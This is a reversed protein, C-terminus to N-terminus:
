YHEKYNESSVNSGMILKLNSWGWFAVTRFFGHKRFRRDSLSVLLKDDYIIEKTKPFRRMLDADECVVSRYGGAKLFVEKRFGSNNSPVWCEKTIRHNIKALLFIIRSYSDYILKWLKSESTYADFGGVVMLGPNEFHKRIRDLFNGAIVSDADVFVIIGNKAKRAGATRALGNGNKPQMLIIAGLKEAIEATGDESHSDVVIIEDGEKMQKKLDTIVREIHDKENLTPIIISLM